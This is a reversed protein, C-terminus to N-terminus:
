TKNSAPDIVNVNDGGSNTQYIRVMEASAPQAAFAFLSLSAVSCLLHTLRMPTEEWSVSKASGCNVSSDAVPEIHMGPGPQYRFAGLGVPFDCHFGGAIDRAENFDHGRQAGGAGATRPVQLLIKRGDCGVGNLFGVFNRVGDRATIKVVQALFQAVQQQLDGIVRAHSLLLAGEVKAIDYKVDRLFKQPAMGVHESVGPPQRRLSHFPQPVTDLALFFCRFASRHPRPRE